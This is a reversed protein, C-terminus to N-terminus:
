PAPSVGGAELLARTAPRALHELFRQATGGPSAGTSAAAYSTYVQLASPLPGVYRIGRDQLLLIETIAGFGIQRGHGNTLHEMVAAGDAPRTAKADILAAIDLRRLVGEFAIGTSARNFVVSDAALLSRRLGDADAIDPAPADARVAVGIGVRGVAVRRDGIRGAAAFRDLSAVPAIVVDWAEGAEIRAAIQPAPNFTVRVRDGSASEFASIVPRLGPEIAGGSLVSVDAPMAGGSVLLSIAAFAARRLSSHGFPKMSNPSRALHVGAARLIRGRPGAEQNQAGRM